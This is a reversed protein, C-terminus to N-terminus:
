VYKKSLFGILEEPIKSFSSIELELPTVMNDKIRKHEQLMIIIKDDTLTNEEKAKLYQSLFYKTTAQVQPIDAESLPNSSAYAKLKIIADRLYALVENKKPLVKATCETNKLEVGLTTLDKIILYCTSPDAYKKAYNYVVDNISYLVTKIKDNGEKNVPKCFTLGIEEFKKM